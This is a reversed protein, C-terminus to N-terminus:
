AAPRGDNPAPSPRLHVVSPHQRAAIKAEYDALMKAAWTFDNKAQILQELTLPIATGAPEGRKNPNPFKVVNTRRRM